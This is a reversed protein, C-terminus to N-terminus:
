RESEALTPMRVNSPWLRYFTALSCHKDEPVESIYHYYLIFKFQHCYRLGRAAKVKDPVESSNEHVFAKIAASLKSEERNVPKLPNSINIKLYKRLLTNTGEPFSDKSMHLAKKFDMKGSSSMLSYTPKLWMLDTDARKNATALQEELQRIEDTKIACNREAEVRLKKEGDLNQELDRIRKQKEDNNKRQRKKGQLFQRSVSSSAQRKPPAPPPPPPLEDEVASVSVAVLRRRQPRQTSISATDQDDPPTEAEGPTDETSMVQVPAVEERTAEVAM